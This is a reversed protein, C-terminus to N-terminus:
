STGNASVIPSFKFAFLIPFFINKSSLVFNRFTRIYDLMYCVTVLVFLHETLLTFRGYFINRKVSSAM